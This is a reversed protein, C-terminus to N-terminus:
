QPDVSRAEGRSACDPGMSSARVVLRPQLLIARPEEAPKGRRATEIIRHLERVALSGVDRLQQAVSTLPPSFYASEPRNDFGVVGLDRPVQLKRENATKLAGLAIHDNACFVADIEPYSALLARLGQEGTAPTWDCAPAIQREEPLIDYASLADQWGRQREGAEWWGAPGPIFGIRRYGAALLHETALRAGQRNDISVVWLGPHQEMSLFINPIRLERKREKFWARNAGIEPVTWVIGEVEQALFNDVIQSVQPTDPNHLLQLMLSYGLENAQQEVGVVAMGSPGYYEHGSAVVGLNMSHRQILQRAIASPRYGLRDLVEEVKLRTEPSVDPHNNVVRSITQTSVGAERAVARITIRQGEVM